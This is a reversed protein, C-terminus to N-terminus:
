KRVFRRIKKALGVGLLQICRSIFQRKKFDTFISIQFRELNASNEIVAPKIPEIKELSLKQVDFIEKQLTSCHEGSGDYGNNKVLTKAPMLVYQKTVSLYISRTVDSKQIKDHLMAPMMQVSNVTNIRMKNKRYFDYLFSQTLNQSLRKERNKWIGYGWASFYQHQLVCNKDTEWDIPYSYGCIALVSDNDKYKELGDNIFQLFYPSFVNDDETYIYADYKSLAYEQLDLSNKTSGFNEARELCTVKKFGTIMPIYDKIKQRGEWYKESPPYDLGIILETKCTLTNKALSEVCNKFHEYRNLTPIIVPYYTMKESM